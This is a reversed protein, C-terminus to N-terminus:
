GSNKHAGKWPLSKKGTMKDYKKRAPLVERRSNQRGRGMKQWIRSLPLHTLRGLLPPAGWMM